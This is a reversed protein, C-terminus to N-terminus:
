GGSVPPIIAVEDDPQLTGEDSFYEENRALRCVPRLGGLGPHRRVIEDWFSGRSIPHAIEWVEERCGALEAAQAFYFVKM